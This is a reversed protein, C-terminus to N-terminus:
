KTIPFKYCNFAISIRITNSQNIPVYHDLKSPFFILIGTKSKIELEQGKSKLFLNPSNESAKLYYVGSVTANNIHNHLRTSQGKLAVNFWFENKEFGLLDHPIILTQHPQILDRHCKNALSLIYSLLPKISPVYEQSLYINEWRNNIYHTYNYKTQHKSFEALIKKNNITNSEIKTYFIQNNLFKVKEM